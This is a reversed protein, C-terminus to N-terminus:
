NLRMMRPSLPSSQSRKTMEAAFQWRVKNRPYVFKGRVHAVGGLRDFQVRDPDFYVRDIWPHGETNYYERVGATFNLKEYTQTIKEKDVTGHYEPYIHKTGDPEIVIDKNQPIVDFYRQKGTFRFAPYLLTQEGGFRKNHPIVEADDEFRIYSHLEGVKENYHAIMSDALEIMLKKLKPSGNYRVLFWPPSPL